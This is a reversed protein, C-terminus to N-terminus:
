CLQPLRRKPACILVVRLVSLSVRSMRRHGEKREQHAPRPCLEPHRQKAEVGVKELVIGKAHSSGGTSSTRYINSLVRKEYTKDAQAFTLYLVYASPPSSM